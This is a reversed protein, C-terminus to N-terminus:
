SSRTRTPSPSGASAIASPVPAYEVRRVAGPTPPTVAGGVEDPPLLVPMMTATTPAMRTRPAPPPIKMAMLVGSGTACAGTTVGSGGGTGVGGGTASTGSGGGAAGTTSSNRIAMVDSGAPAATHRPLTWAALSSLAVATAAASWRQGSPSGLQPWVDRVLATGAAAGVLWRWRPRLLPAVALVVLAVARM